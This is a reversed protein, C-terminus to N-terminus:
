RFLCGSTLNVFGCIAFLRYSFFLMVVVSNFTLVFVPWLDYVYVVSLLCYGCCGTM